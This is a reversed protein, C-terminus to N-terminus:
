EPFYKKEATKIIGYKDPFLSKYNINMTKLISKCAEFESPPIIFKIFATRLIESDYEHETINPTEASSVIKKYESLPVDITKLLNRMFSLELSQQLLFLGNQAFLRDNFVMPRVPFVGPHVTCYSLHPPKIVVKNGILDEAFDCLQENIETEDGNFHAFTLDKPLLIEKEAYPNYFYYKKKKTLPTKILKKRSFNWLLVEKNIAWVAADNKGPNGVLAFFLAVGFSETIDLLRTSAGYHQMESLTELKPHRSKHFSNNTALYYKIASYERHFLFTDCRNDVYSSNYLKKGKSKKAREYSTELDWKANAQGRYFFTDKLFFYQFQKLFEFLNDIRYQAYVRMQLADILRSHKDKKKM